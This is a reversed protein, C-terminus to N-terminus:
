AAAGGTRANIYALAQAETTFTAKKKWAHNATDDKLIKATITPTQWSVTKGQTEAADAPIQFMIKTMVLGTYVYAGNRKHKIVVGLGLYPTNQRDDFVIEEANEDTIGTIGTLEETELGLILASAENTLDNTVLEVTGGQFANDSEDIGNDAYFDNDSASDLNINLRVLKAIIAPNSYTVTTGSNAYKAVKVCSCGIIAM